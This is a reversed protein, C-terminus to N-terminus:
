AVNRGRRHEAIEDALWGLEPPRIGHALAGNLTDLIGLSGVGLANAREVLERALAGDGACWHATAAVVLPGLLLQPVRDPLNRVWQRLRILIRERADDDLLIGDESLDGAATGARRLSTLLPDHDDDQGLMMGPAVLSYWTDRMGPLACVFMSRALQHPTPEAGDGWGLVAAIDAGVTAGTLEEPEVHDIAACIAATLLPRDPAVLAVLDARSARHTGAAAALAMTTPAEDHDSVPTGQPPCCLPEACREHFWRGDVVSIQEGIGLRADKAARRMRRVAAGTVERDAGYAILLVGTAGNRQAAATISAIAEDELADALDLRCTLVIRKDRLCIVVLSDTPTFGLLIPAASVIEGPSRMRVIRPDTSPQLRSTRMVVLSGNGGFSTM